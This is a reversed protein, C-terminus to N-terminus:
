EVWIDDLLLAFAPPTAPDTEPDPALHDFQLVIGTIQDIHEPDFNLWADHWENGALDALSFVNSGTHVGNAEDIWQYGLYVDGIPASEGPAPEALKLWAHLTSFQTWDLERTSVLSTHGGYTPNPVDLRLAGSCSLGDDTAHSVVSSIESPSDDVVWDQLASDDDFGYLLRGFPAVTPCVPDRIEPDETSCDTAVVCTGDACDGSLCDVDFRCREGVDVMAMCVNSLSCYAFPWCDYEFRCPEGPEPLPECTGTWPDPADPPVVCSERNPCTDRNCSGRSTSRPVCRYDTTEDDNLGVSACELGSECDVDLFMCASGLGVTRYPQCIGAGFTESVCASDGCPLYEESSSNCPEGVAAAPACRGSADCYNGGGCTSEDL